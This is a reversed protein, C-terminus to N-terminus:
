HLGRRLCRQVDANWDPSPCQRWHEHAVSRHRPLLWHHCCQQVRCTFLRIWRVQKSPIAADGIADCHVTLMPRCRATMVRGATAAGAPDQRCCTNKWMSRVLGACQRSNMLSWLCRPVSCLRVCASITHSRTRSWQHGTVKVEADVPMLLWILVVQRLPARDHHDARSM